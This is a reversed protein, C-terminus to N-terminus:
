YAGVAQQSLTEIYAAYATLFDAFEVVRSPDHRILDLIEEPSTVGFAELAPAIRDAYVQDPDSHIVGTPVVTEIRPALGNRRMFAEIEMIPVRYAGGPASQIARLSHDNIRNRVTQESYGLREAAEAVSVFM